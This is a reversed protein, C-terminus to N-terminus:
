IVIWLVISGHNHQRGKEVPKGPRIGGGRMGQRGTGHQKEGPRRLRGSPALKYINNM